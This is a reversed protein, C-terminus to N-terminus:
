PWSTALVRVWDASCASPGSTAAVSWGAQDKELAESPSAAANWLVGATSRPQTNMPELLATTYASFALSPLSAQCRLSSRVLAPKPPPMTPAGSTVPSRTITSTFSALAGYRAASLRVV